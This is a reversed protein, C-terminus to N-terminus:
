PAIPGTRGETTWIHTRMPGKNWGAPPAGGGSFSDVGIREAAYQEPDLSGIRLDEGVRDWDARLKTAAYRALLATGAAMSIGVVAM